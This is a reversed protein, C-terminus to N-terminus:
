HSVLVAPFVTGIDKVRKADARTGEELSRVCLALEAPSLRMWASPPGGYRTSLRDMM